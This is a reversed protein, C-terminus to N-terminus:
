EKIYSGGKYVITQFLRLKLPAKLLKKIEVSIRFGKDEMLILAMLRMDLKDVKTDLM